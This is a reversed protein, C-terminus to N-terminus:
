EALKNRQQEMSEQHLHVLAVLKPTWATVHSAQVMNSRQTPPGSCEHLVVALHAFLYLGAFLVHM